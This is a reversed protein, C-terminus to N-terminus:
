SLASQFGIFRPDQTVREMIADRLAGVTKYPRMVVEFQTILGTDDL